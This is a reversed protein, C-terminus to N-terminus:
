DVLPSSWAPDRGPVGGPCLAGDRQCLTCRFRRGPRLKELSLGATCNRLAGQGASVSSDAFDCELHLQLSVAVLNKKAIPHLPGDRVRQAGRQTSVGTEAVRGGTGSAIRLVNSFTTSGSGEDNAAPRPAGTSKGSCKRFLIEIRIWGNALGGAEPRRKTILQDAAPLDSLKVSPLARNM